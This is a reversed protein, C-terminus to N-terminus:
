LLINDYAKRAALISLTKIASATESKRHTVAPRNAALGCSNRRRTEELFMTAWLFYRHVRYYLM